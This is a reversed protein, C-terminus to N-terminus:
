IDIAAMGVAMRIREISEVDPWLPALPADAQSTNNFVAM